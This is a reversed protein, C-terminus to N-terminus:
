FRCVIFGDPRFCPRKDRWLAVSAKNNEPFSVVQQCQTDGCEM